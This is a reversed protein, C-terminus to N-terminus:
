LALRHRFVSTIGSGWYAVACRVDAGSLVDKIVAALDDGMLFRTM